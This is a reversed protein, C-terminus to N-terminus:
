ASLERANLHLVAPRHLHPEIGAGRAAFFLRQDLKSWHEPADWLGPLADMLSSSLKACGLMHAIGIGGHKRYSYTCWGGPCGILEDIAGPWPLIDQEVIVVSEGAQWVRRLLRRYGDDDSLPRYEPSYGQSRLVPRVLEHLQVYPVIVRM